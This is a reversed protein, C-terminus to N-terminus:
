LFLWLEHLIAGTLWRAYSIGLDVLSPHHAKSLASRSTFRLDDANAADLISGEFPCYRLAHCVTCRFTPTFNPFTIAQTPVSPGLASNM